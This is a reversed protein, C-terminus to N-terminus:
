RSRIVHDPLSAPLEDQIEMRQALAQIELFDGNTIQKGEESVIWALTRVPEGLEVHELLEEVERSEDASLVTALGIVLGRIRGLTDDFDAAVTM